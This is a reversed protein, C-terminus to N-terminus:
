LREGDRLRKFGRDALAERAQSLQRRAVPLRTGDFLVFDGGDLRSVFDLNVLLGRNAHYLQPWAALEEEFQGFPMRIRTPVGASDYICIYHRDAQAYAITEPSIVDGSPLRLASQPRPPTTLAVGLRDLEAALRGYTVPKLVYARVDAAYGSIAYDPSSTVLVAPTTDGRRRLELLVDVGSRRDKDFVCDFVLLDYAGPRHALLFEDPSDFADVHGGGHADLYHTAHEVLQDLCQRDDDLVAIRTM